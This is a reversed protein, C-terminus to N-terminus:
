GFSLEPIFLTYLSKLSHRAMTLTSSALALRSASDLVLLCRLEPPPLPLDTDVRALYLLLVAGYSKSALRCCGDKTRKNRMQVYADVDVYQKCKQEISKTRETTM